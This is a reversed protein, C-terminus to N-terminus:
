VAINEERGELFAKLNGAVVDILRKRADVSAWGMHPTIVINPANLLPNDARMPEISVVDVAAGAVKGSELAATLDEEVVLGGRSVNIIIVGTKMKEINNRNIIGETEKTLPCHLSIIDARSLLTDMDTFSINLDDKNDEEYKEPHATNVLVNMHFARAIECVRRGINGYGVIGITKGALETVPALWYCFIDSKVWDGKHVSENHLSIHCVTELIMGWTLQAVSETSYAPVYTVTVNHKRAADMDIVNYGTACVGIYRIAPCRDFVETDMRIKNVFVIEANGIHDYKNEETTNGYVKTEVVSTVPEWSLDGHDVADAELIVAKM